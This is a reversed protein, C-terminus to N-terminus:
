KKKRQLMKGRRKKRELLPSSPLSPSLSTDTAAATAVFTINHVLSPWKIEKM